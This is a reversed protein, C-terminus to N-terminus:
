GSAGPTGQWQAGDWQTNAWSRGLPDCSFCSEAPCGVGEISCVAVGFGFDNTIVELGTLELAKLGSIPATFLVPRVIVDGPEFQIVMHAADSGDAQIKDTPWALLATVAMLTFVLGVTTVGTLQILSSTVARKLSALLRYFNQM